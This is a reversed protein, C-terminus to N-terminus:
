KNLASRKKLILVVAVAFLSAALIVAGGALTAQETLGTNPIAPNDVNSGSPATTTTSDAAPTETGTVPQDDDPKAPTLQPIEQTEVAGCVSCVRHQSGAADVTAEKDVIWEGYSHGLAAIEETEVEGCVSCVRHQSGAETCTAEKDVIWNGYTHAIMPIPQTEVNGCASCERHQSGAETCTAEKDVIWEGYTHAVVPITATDLATGCRKCRLERLGEETCTAEKVTVWKGEDHGLAPIPKTEETGCVSCVRHQLGEETCTAPTIDEWEGFNHGTAPVEKSDLIEGCRNCKLVEVGAETCTPAKDPDPVWEADHGLALIPQTETAGCSCTRTEEGPETCTPAKTEKWDGFEHGAAPLTTSSIVEGCVVCVVSKEGVEEHTPEKVVNKTTAHDCNFGPIVTATEDSSIVEGPHIGFMNFDTISFDAASVSGSVYEFKLTALVEPDNLARARAYTIRVTNEDYAPNVVAFDACDVTEETDTCVVKENDYDLNLNGGAVGVGGPVTITVTIEEGAAVVEVSYTPTEDDAFAIMGTTFASMLICVTLLISLIKKKM